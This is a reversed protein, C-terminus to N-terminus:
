LIKPGAHRRMAPLRDFRESVARCAFAKALPMKDIGQTEQEAGLPQEGSALSPHTVRRGRGKTTIKGALWAHPLAPVAQTHRACDLMGLNGEFQGRFLSRGPPDDEWLRMTWAWSDDGLPCWAAVTM